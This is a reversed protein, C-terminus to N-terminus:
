EGYEAYGYRREPFEEQLRTLLKDDAIKAPELSDHQIMPALHMPSLRTKRNLTVGLEKARRALTNDGTQLQDRLSKVTLEGRAQRMILDDEKASFVRHPTNM